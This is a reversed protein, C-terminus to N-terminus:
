FTIADPPEADGRSREGEVVVLLRAPACSTEGGLRAVAGTHVCRQGPCPSAAIRASGDGVEVRVPGIRTPVELVRSPAHLDYWGYGGEDLYIAARVGPETRFRLLAAVSSAGVLLLILADLPRFWPWPGSAKM